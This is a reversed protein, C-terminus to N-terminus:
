LQIRYFKNGAGPNVTHTPAVAGTVPTWAGGVSDAELLTGAQWILRFGGPVSIQSLIVPGYADFSAGSNQGSLFIARADYSSLARRWLGLDDIQLSGDVAFTGTPDQGLCIPKGTDISKLGVISRFAVLSGDIYTNAVGITGDFSFVVSHWRGDNLAPGGIPNALVSSGNTDVLSWSLLGNQDTFVWGTRLFSGEANGVFPLDASPNTYNIWLAVSFMDSGSFSFDSSYPISVYNYIPAATDSNVQISGSGLFGQVFAPSGNTIADHMLGSSDTLDQDLKLHLVLGNTLNAFGPTPLVALNASQSPTSGAANTAILQYRASDDYNLNALTFTENTANPLPVGNKFWQLTIPLSGEVRTHLTLATGIEAVQAQPQLQFVPATNTGYLAAAYHAQIQTQSLARGYFAVEDIQGKWLLDAPVVSSGGRGGILLPGAANHDFSLFSSGDWQGNIYLRLLNTPDFTIVLYTWTDPQMTVAPASSPIYYESGASGVAAAWLGSGPAATVFYTGKGLYHTSAPCLNDTLDKTKAWCEFTLAPPNLAPAFPVSAYGASGFSASTGATGPVVGPVGLEVVGNFVGDHRGMADMLTSSNTPDDLRWWAEPADAVITAEFSGPVVAVVSVNAPGSTVSGRLNRATVRYAGADTGTVAPVVYTSDTAGGISNGDKDWQYQLSGGTATVTLALSGGPYVARGIPDQSITPVTETSIQVVAVASTVVMFQNSIVVDYAGSDSASVKPIVYRSSTAGGLDAGDQRWQYTLLPTGGADVALALSDGVFLQNTPAQPGGFIQPGVGDLASAYQSFVEGVSLARNFVAFEDLAGVFYRDAYQIDGGFLTLGDFAQSAHNAFNTAGSFTAYNTDQAVFLSARSPEVILAVFAWDSDPLSLGSTWNYTAPDNNWTYSLGHGGAADMTLGAATGIWRDFMVAALSAQPGAANVWGTVTITNTNLNLPPVSAYGGPVSLGLSNNSPDFGPLMPPRPGLAGPTCPAIYSGTATAGLSGLNAAAPDPPEGLRWYGLPNDAMIQAAYGPGNTIAADFHAKVVTAELVNTYFAVEQIWGDFPRNPFTTMGVHFHATTNPTFDGGNFNTVAVPQGDVYLLLASGNFAGVVHSWANPTFTGGTAVAAYGSYNGLRFQWASNPGDVYFVYGERSNGSNTSTDLSCVTSFVDPPTSSPKAWFEVTFPGSPNLAPTYPVNVYPGVIAVTWDPNSFKESTDGTGSLVGPQGRLVGNQLGGNLGAGFTGLNTALIPQPPPPATENFEWFGAPNQSLVTSRYDARAQFTLALVVGTLFLSWCRFGPSSFGGAAKSGLNDELHDVAATSEQRLILELTM